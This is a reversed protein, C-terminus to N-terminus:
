RSSGQFLPEDRGEAGLTVTWDYAPAPLARARANEEAASPAVPLSLAAMVAAVAARQGRM